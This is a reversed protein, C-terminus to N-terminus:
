RTQGQRRSSDCGVCTSKRRGHVVAVIWLKLAYATEIAERGLRSEESMILVDFPPRPKLANRLRLFGSRNAFEAGSIGDDVYIQKYAERVCAQVGRAAIPLPEWHFPRSTIMVLGGGANEFRKVIPSQSILTELDARIRESENIL